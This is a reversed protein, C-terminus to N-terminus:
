HYYVPTEIDLINGDEGEFAFGIGYGSMYLDILTPFQNLDYAYQFDKVKLILHNNELRLNAENINKETRILYEKQIKLFFIIIQNKEKSKRLEVEPFLTEVNDVIINLNM